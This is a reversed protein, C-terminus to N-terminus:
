MRRGKIYKSVPKNAEDIPCNYFMYRMKEVKSVDWRGIPRNFAAACCFM